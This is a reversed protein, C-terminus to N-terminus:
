RPRSHHARYVIIVVAILAALTIIAIKGPGTQPLKKVDEPDSQNTDIRNIAPAPIAPPISQNPDSSNDQDSPDSDTQDKDKDTDDTNDLREFETPKLKIKAQIVSAYGPGAPILGGQYGVKAGLGQSKNLSGPDTLAFDGLSAHSKINSLTKLLPQQDAEFVYSALVSKNDALCGISITDTIDDHNDASITVKIEPDISSGRLVFYRNTISMKVQVNRAVGPGDFDDAEAQGNSNNSTAPASNHLYIWVDIVKEDDTDCYDQDAGNGFQGDIGVRFFDAETARDVRGGPWLSADDDQGLRNLKPGSQSDQAQVFKTLLFLSVLILGALILLYVLRKATKIM